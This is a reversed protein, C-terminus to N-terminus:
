ESPESFVGAPDVSKLAVGHWVIRDTKPCKGRDLGRESLQEGFRRQSWAREGVQTVWAVYRTYLETAYGQANPATICCDAIFQGLVDQGARYESTATVVAEPMKLGRQQWEGCGAVLLRLIGDAEAKLKGDLTTDKEDETITEAFPVLCIRRWVGFDTGRVIPKHNSQLVIKAQTEFSHNNERMKRATITKEGTLDKLQTEDFRVGERSESVFVLRRGALDAVSTSHKQEDTLLDRAAKFAYDGFVHLCVNVLTTKGNQGNGLWFLLKQESVDGTLCYGLCRLIFPVLEPRGRFIRQLFAVFVPATADETWAANCIKTLRDAPNHQRLTATRLDLTGNILNLAM